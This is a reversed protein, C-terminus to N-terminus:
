CQVQIHVNGYDDVSAPLSPPVVITSEREEIIVPGRLEMGPTLKSCM